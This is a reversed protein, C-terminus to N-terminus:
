FSLLCSDFFVRSSLASVRVRRKSGNSSSSQQHEVIVSKRDKWGQGREIVEHSIRPCKFRIQIESRQFSGNTLRSLKPRILTIPIDHCAVMNFPVTRQTAPALVEITTPAEPVIKCWTWKSSEEHATRNFATGSMSPSYTFATAM